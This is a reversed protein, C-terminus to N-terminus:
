SAFLCNYKTDLVGKERNSTKLTRIYWSESSLRHHIDPEWALVSVSQFDIDHKDVWMNKNIKNKM